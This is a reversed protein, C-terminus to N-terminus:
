VVILAIKPLFGKGKWVVVFTNRNVRWLRGKGGYNDKWVLHAWRADEDLNEPIIPFFKLSGM